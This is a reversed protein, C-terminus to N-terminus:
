NCENSLGEKALLLSNEFSKVERHIDTATSQADNLAERWIDFVSSVMKPLKKDLSKITKEYVKSTDVGVKEKRMETEVMWDGAAGGLLGGLLGGVVTGVVPIPIFATGLAAGGAAGGVGGAAKWATGSVQEYDICIDEFDGTDEKGFSVLVTDVERSFGDILRSLEETLRSTILNNVRSALEAKRGKSEKLEEVWDLVKVTLEDKLALLVKSQLDNVEKEQAKITEKLNIVVPVLESRIGELVSRDLYNIIQQRAKSPKYDSALKILKSMCVLVESLGSEELDVESQSSEKYSRLSISIPTEVKTAGLKSSARSHVDGEQLRRNEITKNVTHSVIKGNEDCDEELVDSRTIIPLLPKGSELEIRLDYLEQVQGPSTSPTLWLVADASDTFKRTLDGNEDTVSHLGPSDLLILKGGLEVGQIRATTETVGEAFAEQIQLVEGNELYFYRRKEEPFLSAVFNSFSSKGANVKGFVLFIVKDGFEQSLNRSSQSADWDSAWSSVMISVQNSAKETAKCLPNDKQLRSKVNTTAKVKGVFDDRIKLLSAEDSSISKFTDDFSSVADILSNLTSM